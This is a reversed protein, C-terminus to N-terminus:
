YKFASDGIFERLISTHPVFKAPITSFNDLFSILRIAEHYVENSPKVSRLLQLAEGAMVGLEYDLASNFAVDADKQYPFINRNEGSRVQPWMRLTTLADANRYKADRVMRRILRNDTTPIRNHDDLNLQTLASVYVRYCRTQPVDPILAPNLAHMGEMLIVANPGPAPGPSRMKRTGTKFDFSPLEVPSAEILDLLTKNLLAVDVAGLDEFNYNGHEDLPTLERPVFFDDIAAIIPELGYVQLQIALRKTFTTKGSSSPGAILVIRPQSPDAAIGEAIADIRKNHLAEAVRIFERITGERVRANLRGASHVGLIKGWNKHEQYVSFLLPNDEFPATCAPDTESPFMLLFGPGYRMLEFVGLLETSPAVPGHSLDCYQGCQYVAIKAVNHHELLQSTESMGAERFHERAQEYAMVRHHIPRRAAVLEQMRNSIQNLDNEHVPANDAFEYYYAEGLSHSISLGRAPFVQQVAMALLYCLSRRYVRAGEPSALKVPVLTADTELPYTLSVLENNVLCAIIADNLASFQRLAEGVPIGASFSHSEPTGCTLFIQTSTSM